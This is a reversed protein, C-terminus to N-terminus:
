CTTPAASSAIWRCARSWAGAVPIHNPSPLSVADGSSIEQGNVTLKGKLVQIWVGRQQRIKFDLTESKPLRSIYLDADQKIQLSGERGDQSIVLVLKKENLEKEFSKQGYGPTGGTQNPLIWIQFFHTELDALQNKESHAIGNGASMRQVEGPLIVAKTGMSDQHVLGGKVVYSIIEMDRHPHTGFGTGGDIRDENIVRLSKFGMHKPNYYDAFSFTHRSKLWGHDALGREDSKRLQLM